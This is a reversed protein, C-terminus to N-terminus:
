HAQEESASGNSGAPELPPIRIHNEAGWRTCTTLLYNASHPKREITALYGIREAIVREDLYRLLHVIVDHAEVLQRPRRGPGPPQGMVETLWHDVLADARPNGRTKGTGNESEAEPPRRTSGNSSAAGARSNYSSDLVTRYIAEQGDDAGKGAGAAGKGTTMQVKEGTTMQVKEESFPAGAAGKLPAADAGKSRMTVTYRAYHGPGRGPDEVVIQNDAVLRRIANKVTRVSLRTQRALRAIGPYAGTGDHEAHGAIALLVDFDTRSKPGHDRVWTTVKVSM